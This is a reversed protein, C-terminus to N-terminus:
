FSFGINITKKLVFKINKVPHQQNGNLYTLEHLKSQFNGGICGYSIYDCDNLITNPTKHNLQGAVLNRPNSFEESYKESFTSRKMIVEGYTYFQPSVEMRKRSMMSLHEDSRQGVTGDGRTWAKNEWEDVCLSAGDFKPTLILETGLPINKSKFWKEIEEVTKVKNMSAMDIPLPQKRDDNDSLDIGVKTLLPNEPDLLELEDMLTDYQTDTIISEGNRYSVNAEHIKQELEKITITMYKTKNICIYAM